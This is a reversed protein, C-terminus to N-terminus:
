MQSMKLGLARGGGPPPPHDQVAAVGLISIAVGLVNQSNKPGRNSFGSLSSTKLTQPRGSEDCLGLFYLSGM